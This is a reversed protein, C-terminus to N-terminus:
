LHERLSDVKIRFFNQVYLSMRASDLPMRSKREKKLDVGNSFIFCVTKKFFMLQIDKNYMKNKSTYKFFHNTMQSYLGSCHLFSLEYM